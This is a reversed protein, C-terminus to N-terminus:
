PLWPRVRRPEGADREAECPSESGPGSYQRARARPESRGEDEDRNAPKRKRPSFCIQKAPLPPFWFSHRQGCRSSFRHLMGASSLGSPKERGLSNLTIIPSFRCYVKILRRHKPGLCSRVGHCHHTTQLLPGQFHPEDGGVGGGAQEKSEAIILRSYSGGQRRPEPRKDAPHHCDTQNRAEGHIAPTEPFRGASGCGPSETRCPGRTGLGPRTGGAGVRCGRHPRHSPLGPARLHQGPKRCPPPSRPSGRGPGGPASRARRWEM